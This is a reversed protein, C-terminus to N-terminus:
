AFQTVKPRTAPADAARSAMAVGHGAAVERFPAM